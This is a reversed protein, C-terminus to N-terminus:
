IVMGKMRGDCVVGGMRMFSLFYPINLLLILHGNEEGGGGRRGWWGWWDFVMVLSMFVMM